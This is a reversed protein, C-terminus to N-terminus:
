FSFIISLSMFIIKVLYTSFTHTYSPRLDFSDCFFHPLHQLHKEIHTNYLDYTHTTHANTNELIVRAAWLLPKQNRPYLCLGCVTEQTIKTPCLKYKNSTRWLIRYFSKAFCMHTKRRELVHKPSLLFLFPSFFSLSM